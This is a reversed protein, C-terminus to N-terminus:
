VTLFATETVHYSLTVPLYNLKEWKCVSKLVHAASLKKFCQPLILFPEYQSVEGNAM